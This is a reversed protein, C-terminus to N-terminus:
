SPSEAKLYDAAFTEGIIIQSTTIVFSKGTVEIVDAVATDIQVEAEEKTRESFTLSHKFLAHHL